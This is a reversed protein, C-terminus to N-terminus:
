EDKKKKKKYFRGKITGVVYGRMTTLNGSYGYYFEYENDSAFQQAEKNSMEITKPATIGNSYSYINKNRPLKEKTKIKTMYKRVREIATREDKNEDIVLTKTDRMNIKSVWVYGKNWLRSLEEFPIYLKPHMTDKILAHIHLSNREEQMEVVYLYELDQMQEKLRKWFYDFDKKLQEMDNISDSYTLTIFMENKGGNFNNRIYDSVKKMSGRIGSISRVDSINYKKIKKEAKDYYEEKNLRKYNKIHNKTNSTNVIKLKKEEIYETIKVKADSPIDGNGNFSKYKIGM